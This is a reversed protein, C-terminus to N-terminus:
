DQSQTGRQDAEWIGEQWGQRYRAGDVTVGHRACQAQYANDQRQLRYLGDRFGLDYWDARRCDEAELGACGCLLLVLLSASRM